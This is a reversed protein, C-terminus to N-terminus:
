PAIIETLSPSWALAPSIMADQSGCVLGIIESTSPLTLNDSISSPM